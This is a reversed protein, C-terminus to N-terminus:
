RHQAALPRGGKQRRGSLRARRCLCLRALGAARSRAFGHDHRSRDGADARGSPLGAFAISFRVETIRAFSRFYPNNLEGSIHGSYLGLVALESDVAAENHTSLEPRGIIQDGRYPEFHPKIRLPIGRILAVFRISTKEVRGMPHDGARLQWWGKQHFIKRLPTAIQRDYELRGIDEEAACRLGILHDKAIGRKAAYFRALDRSDRDTENYVVVTMDADRLSPPPAVAPKKAENRNQADARGLFLALMLAAIRSGHAFFRARKM